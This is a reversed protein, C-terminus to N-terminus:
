QAKGIVGCALRDGADGTPQTKYDDLNAHILLASGDADTLAAVNTEVSYFQVKATGDSHVFFNPLDGNHPGKASLYGHEEGEDAMHSASAKFHDEHDDCTGVAHIHMAHWGPAMGTLEVDLLIGKPTETIRANGIMAGKADLMTASLAAAPAHTDVAAADATQTHHMGILSALMGLGFFAYFQKM